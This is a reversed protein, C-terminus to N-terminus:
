LMRQCLFFNQNQKKRSNSLHIQKMNCCGAKTVDLVKYLWPWLLAVTCLIVGSFLLCVALRIPPSKDQFFVNLGEPHSPINVRGRGLKILLTVPHSLHQATHCQQHDITDTADESSTTTFFRCIFGHTNSALLYLPEGKGDNGLQIWRCHRTEKLSDPVPVFLSNITWSLCTTLDPLWAAFISSLQPLVISSVKCCFRSILGGWLM